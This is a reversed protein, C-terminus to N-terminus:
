ILRHRQLYSEVLRDRFFSVQKQFIKLLAKLIPLPNFKKLNLTTSHQRM